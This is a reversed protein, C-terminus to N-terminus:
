NKLDIYPLAQKHTHLVTLLPRLVWDRRKRVAPIFRSMWLITRNSLSLYQRAARTVAANGYVYKDEAQELAFTVKRDVPVPNPPLKRSGEFDYFEPYFNQLCERQLSRAYKQGPDYKLATRAFDLDCYPFAVVHGPPHMMTIWPAVARRTRAQFFALQSQNMNPLFKAVFQRYKELYDSKSEDPVSLHLLVHPKTAKEVIDDASRRPDGDLGEIDFSSNGLVDGGLGDFILSPPRKSLWRMLPMAWNHMFTETGILHQRKLCDEYYQEPSSASIVENAVGFTKAIRPAYVSDIDYDRGHKRSFSQCTVTQFDTKNRVLFAFFRRSDFGSTFPLVVEGVKLQLCRQMAKRYADEIVQATSEDVPTEGDALANFDFWQRAEHAHRAIRMEAGSAFRKIDRYFSRDDVVYSNQMLSVWSTMDPQDDALHILGPHSAFLWTGNDERYFIPSIGFADSKVVANQLVTDFKIYAFVGNELREPAMIRAHERADSYSHVGLSAEYGRFVLFDDALKHVLGAQSSPSRSSIAWFDPSVQVALKGTDKQFEPPKSPFICAVFFEVDAFDKSMLELDIKM